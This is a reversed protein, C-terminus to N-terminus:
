RLMEIEDETADTAEAVAEVMAETAVFDDVRTDAILSPVRIGRRNAYWRLGFDRVRALM